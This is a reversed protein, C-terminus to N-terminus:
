QVQAAPTIAEEMGYSPRQGLHHLSTGITRLM